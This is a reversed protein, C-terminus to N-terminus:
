QKVVPSMPTFLKGLSMKAESITFQELAYLARGLAQRM